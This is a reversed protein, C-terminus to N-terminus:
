AIYEKWSLLEEDWLYRKGDMTKEQPAEWICKDENLIWSPFPKDLIFADRSQDYNMGVGAFNKRFSRNYSTQIWAGGLLDICFQKGIQESENGNSDLIDSNNVVIVRVVKNNEDIEAFHAM